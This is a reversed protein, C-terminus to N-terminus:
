PLCLSGKAIGLVCDSLLEPDFEEEVVVVVVVGLGELLYTRIWGVCWPRWWWFFVMVMLLDPLVGIRMLYVVWCEMM